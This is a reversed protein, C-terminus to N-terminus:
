ENKPETPQTTTEASPEPTQPTEPKIAQKNYIDPMQTGRQALQPLVERLRDSNAPDNVFEFFKFADQKFERRVEAPLREFIENGRQIREQAQLLDTPAESFDAYEAGFKELHSLSGVKGARDLIKNIDCEDMFSQKTRGPKEYVPEYIKGNEKYYFSM